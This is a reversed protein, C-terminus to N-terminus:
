RAVGQFVQSLTRGLNADVATKDGVVDLAVGLPIIGDVDAARGEDGGAGRSVCGASASSACWPVETRRQRTPLPPDTTGTGMDPQGYPWHGKPGARCDPRGTALTKANRHVQRAIDGTLPTSASRRRM